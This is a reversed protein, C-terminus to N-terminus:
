PGGVPAPLTETDLWRSVGARYGAVTVSGPDEDDLIDLMEDRVLELHHQQEVHELVHLIRIKDEEFQEAFTGDGVLCPHDNRRGVRAGTVGDGLWLGPLVAM